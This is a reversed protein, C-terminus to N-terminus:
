CGFTGCFCGCFWSVCALPPFAFLDLPNPQILVRCIRLFDAVFGCCINTFDTHTRGSRTLSSMAEFAFICVSHEGLFGHMDLSAFTKAGKRPLHKRQPEAHALFKEIKDTNFVAAPLLVCFSSEICFVVIRHCFYILDFNKTQQPLLFQCLIPMKKQPHHSNLSILVNNPCSVGNQAAFVRTLHQGHRRHTECHRGKRLGCNTLCGFM